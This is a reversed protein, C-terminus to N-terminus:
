LQSEIPFISLFNAKFRQWLSANPEHDFVTPQGDVIGHWRIKESGKETKVLELRFAVEDIREEFVRAMDRALEPAEFVVGIETNFYIARPDLNLSGIFVSQRDLVFSKTHLSAVSAGFTARRQEKSLKSNLEYLEVGDRLLAKRFKLYGAHVMAVDNSALSNTLIRVRVGRERVARLAAVGEKGPVFYPSFIIMESQVAQMHPSLQAALYRESEGREELLKDPPDYVVQGTGWYYEVGQGRLATALASNRLARLYDSEAQAAVYERLRTRAAAVEEGTPRRPILVEAPYALASNWYEDFAASVERAIPGMAVVDLDSFAIEPDAEFYEDGINRGGLITIQNDVTFSKNHMRRDVEGLRTVFQSARSANRAFPNFIRIEMNPHANAEAVGLDRGALDMDDVLLRVRVGRDAAELLLHVFLRGILDDHFLYYQVDISREAANALVARAVFADLGNGLPHFGTKGPRSQRHAYSTKGLATEGTDTYAFSEPKDFGEPLTACGAAALMVIFLTAACLHRAIMDRKGTANGVARRGGAINGLLVPTRSVLRAM